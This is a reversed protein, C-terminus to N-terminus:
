ITIETQNVPLKSEINRDWVAFAILDIGIVGQVSSYTSTMIAYPPSSTIVAPRRLVSWLLVPHFRSHLLFVAWGRRGMVVADAGPDVM